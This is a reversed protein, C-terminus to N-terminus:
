RASDNDVVKRYLVYVYTCSWLTSWVTLLLVAVPVIPLWEIAPVWGKLLWDFLIVPLLVACWTLLITLGLWALRLLLAVRRGSVLASSARMAWLPYTGPVTVIVLAFFSSVMWYLSLVGMLGAAVWFLMAEVGGDLIGSSSAAVYGIAAIGVPLLQLLFIFFVITSAFLPAGSNYLGDRITVSKGALRARLLWVVSLWLMLFLAIIIAQQVGNPEVSIGSTAVGAFLIATQWLAGSVGQLVDDTSDRLPQMLSNYAEQSGIGMFIAYLIGYIAAVGLLHRRYMWITAWVDRTFRIYGPLKLVRVADRRRTRRFSAHPTPKGFFARWKSRFIGVWRLIAGRVAKLKSNTPM